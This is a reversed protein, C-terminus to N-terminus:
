TKASPRWCSILRNAFDSYIPGIPMAFAGTAAVITPPEWLCKLEQGEIKRRADFSQRMPNVGEPWDEHLVFDGLLPHGEFHLGFLDEVEREHWDAAPVATSISPVAENAADLQLRVYAWPSASDKYFVYTLVWPAETGEEVILTAFAFGLRRALWDCVEILDGPVAISVAIRAWARRRQNHRTGEM